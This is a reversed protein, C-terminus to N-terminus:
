RGVSGPTEGHLGSPWVIDAARPIQSYLLSNEPATTERGNPKIVGLCCCLTNLCGHVNLSRMCVPKRQQKGARGWLRTDAAGSWPALVAKGLTSGDQKGGERSNWPGARLRDRAQTEAAHLEVWWEERGGPGGVGAPAVVVGRAAPDGEGGPAGRGADVLCPSM